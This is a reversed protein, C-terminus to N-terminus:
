PARRCLQWTKDAETQEETGYCWGRSRLKEVYSDREACARQTAPSDGSGGRCTENAKEEAALLDHVSVPKPASGSASRLQRWTSSTPHSPEAAVVREFARAATADANFGLTTRLLNRRDTEPIQDLVGVLLKPNARMLEDVGGYAQEGAGGDAVLAYRVLTDAALRDVRARASLAKIRPLVATVFDGFRLAGDDRVHPGM